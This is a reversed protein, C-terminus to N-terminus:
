LCAPVGDPGPLLMECRRGGPPMGRGEAVVEARRCRLRAVQGAPGAESGEWTADVVSLSLDPRGAALSGIGSFGAGRLLYLLISGRERCRAALRRLESESPRHVPAVMVLDVAGVFTAVVSGWSEPDPAEVVLLREPRVGAEVGAVLGLDGDGVVAVWSNEQTARAVLALALSRAGVGSLGVTSGRRLGSPLVSELASVVPLSREVALVTPRIRRAMDALSSRVTAPGAVSRLARTSPPGDGSPGTDTSLDDFPEPEALLHAPLSRSVGVTDFM